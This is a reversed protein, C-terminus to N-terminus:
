PRVNKLYERVEESYQHKPFEELFRDFEIKAHSKEQGKYYSKALWFRADARSSDLYLVNMFKAIAFDYLGSYFYGLGKIFHSNIIPHDDTEPLKKLKGGTKLKEVIKKAFNAALSDVDKIKGTEEFSYELQTTQIDYMHLNAQFIGNIQVFGGKILKNAKILQGIKLSNTSNLGSLSQSLEQWIKHMDERYLIKLGDYGSLYAVLLDSFGESLSGLSEDGTSNTMPEVIVRYEAVSYCPTLLFWLLFFTSYKKVM